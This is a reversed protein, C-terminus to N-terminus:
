SVSENAPGRQRGVLPRAYVAAVPTGSDPDYIRVMGDFGGVAVERGDPRFAVTYVAGHEHAFRSVQKADAEQYVRVEGQGDSSSGAVIRTGDGSYRVSFIRGPM